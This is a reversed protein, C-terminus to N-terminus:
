HRQRAHLERGMILDTALCYTGAAAITIDVTSTRPASILHDCTRDNAAAPTTGLLVVLGLALSVFLGLRAVHSM